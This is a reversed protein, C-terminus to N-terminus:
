VPQKAESGSGVAWYFVRRWKELSLSLVAKREVTLPLKIAVVLVGLRCLAAFATSLQYLKAYGHGRHIRMFRLLSQRMVIATFQRDSQLNSSQGGHHTVTADGVYYNTKGAKKARYCLDM